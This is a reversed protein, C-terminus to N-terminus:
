KYEMKEEELNIHDQKAPECQYYPKVEYNQFNPTRWVRENAMLQNYYVINSNPFMELENNPEYINVLKATM